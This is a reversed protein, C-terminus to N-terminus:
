RYRVEIRAPRTLGKLTVVGDGFENAPNGDVSVGRIKAGQPHRLYLVIAEPPKRTPPDLSVEIRGQDAHSEITYSVKGFYTPADLVAV